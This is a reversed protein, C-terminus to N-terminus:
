RIPVFGAKEILEQGQDSLLLQAYAEGAQEEIQGNQKIIVYLNRTIPYTADRFAQYNIQNRRAPCQNSPVLPEIYPSVIRDSSVGIPLPKIRCQRVIESASAYFISGRNASIERLTPTVNGTLQVRESFESSNLVYGQFFEATGSSEPDKSYAVIELDPGGVQQWNTIKGLYIDRIQTVTLGPINLSPNVAFAIGDIAVRIQKLSFQYEQAYQYESAKLARSSQAFALKDKILKEIGRGSGPAYLPHQLYRLQFEPWVSQIVPEIQSRIPAWTTSGGHNFIGTPVGEVDILKSYIKAQKTTAPTTAPTKSETTTKPATTPAPQSYTTTEPSSNSTLQFRNIGLFALVAIAAATTALFALGVKPTNQSPQPKPLQKSEVSAAAFNSRSKTRDPNKESQLHSKSDHKHTQNNDKLRKQEESVRTKRIKLDRPVTQKSDSSDVSTVLERQVSADQKEVTLKGQSTAALQERNIPREPESPSFNKSEEKSLFDNWTPPLIAPNQCIVPLWTACPFENEIGELRERASRVALHLPVGQAFSPLFYTLFQQAVRDPVPERMVIMQPISLKELESVLGLGDCSNFIALLLGKEIAKTLALKIEDITLSDKQNIYIRGKQAEERSHGAFFLIDWTQQWLYQNLQQRQPEELFTIQADPLNKLLEEKDQQINIGASNGLIALIRVRDSPTRSIASQKYERASLGIESFPYGKLFDWLHWPLKRLEHSETRILFRIEERPNLQERLRRDIPRFGASDLWQNLQQHLKEAENRCEQTRRHIYDDIEVEIPNIKREQKLRFSGDLRRKLRFSYELQHYSSQWNKYQKVLSTAPPLSGTIEADPYKGELGTELFLQFGKDCDGNLKLVVLKGM